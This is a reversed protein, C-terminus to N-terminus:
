RQSPPGTPEAPGMPVDLSPHVRPEDLEPLYEAGEPLEVPANPEGSPDPGYHEQLM